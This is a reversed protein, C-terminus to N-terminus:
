SRAVEPAADVFSFRASTAKEVGRSFGESSAAETAWEATGYHLYDVGCLDVLEEFGFEPEDRLARCVEILKASKVELTVEGFATKCGDISGKFRNELRAALTQLHQTM